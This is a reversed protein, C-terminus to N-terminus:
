GFYNRVSIFAAYTQDNKRILSTWAQIIQICSKSIVTSGFSGGLKGVKQSPKSAGSGKAGAWKEVLVPRFILISFYVNHMLNIMVM